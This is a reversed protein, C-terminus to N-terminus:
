VGGRVLIVFKSVTQADRAGMTLSATNAFLVYWSNGADAPFTTSSSWLPTIPWSPFATTNPVGGTAGIGALQNLEFINPVRWDSYGGVGAQNCAKAFPFIGNCALSIAGNVPVADSGEAVCTINGTNLVLDLDTGNVAKSVLRFGPLKANAGAFGFLYGYGVTYKLIEGAGAKIRVTMSGKSATPIWIDNNAAHISVATATWFLAGTSTAGLKAPSYSGYRMWMLGTNLDVVCNNSQLAQKAITIMAGAAEEVPASTLVIETAVNGTAVTYETDNGASGRIRIVDGTKVVNLGAAATIKSTANVFAIDNRALTPVYVASTGSQSGATLVGYAKTVGKELDGDDNAAYATTQGTKLLGQQAPQRLPSM